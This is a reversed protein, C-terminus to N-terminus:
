RPCVTRRLSGVRAERQDRRALKFHAAVVTEHIRFVAAVLRWDVCHTQIGEVHADVRDCGPLIALKQVRRQRGLLDFNALAPGVLQM